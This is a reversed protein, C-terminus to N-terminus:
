ILLAALGGYLVVVRKAYDTYSPAVMKNVNPNLIQGKVCEQTSKSCYKQVNLLHDLIKNLWSNDSTDSECCMVNYSSHTMEPSLRGQLKVIHFLPVFYIANGIKQWICNYLLPVPLRPCAIINNTSQKRVATIESRYQRQFSLIFVAAGIHQPLLLTM